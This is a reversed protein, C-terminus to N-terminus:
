RVTLDPTDTPGCVCSRRCYCSSFYPHSMNEDHFTQFVGDVNGSFYVFLSSTKMEFM